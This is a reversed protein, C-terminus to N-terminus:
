KGLLRIAIWIKVLEVCRTMRCLFKLQAAKLLFGAVYIGYPCGRYAKLLNYLSFSSLGPRETNNDEQLEYDARFLNLEASLTVLVNERNWAHVCGYDGGTKPCTARSLM